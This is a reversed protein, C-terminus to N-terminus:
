LCQQYTPLTIIPNSISLSVHEYDLNTLEDVEVSCKDVGMECNSDANTKSENIDNRNTLNSTARRYPYQGEFMEPMPKLPHIFAGAGQQHAWVFISKSKCHPILQRWLGYM